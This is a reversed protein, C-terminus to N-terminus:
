RATFQGQADSVLAEALEALDAQGYACDDKEAVGRYRITGEARDLLLLTARLRTATCTDFRGRQRPHSEWDIGDAGSNSPDAVGTDAARAAIAFEAIIPAGQTTTISRAALADALAAGFNARLSGDTEFPAIQVATEAPLRGDTSAIHVPTSVACGGVMLALALAAVVARRSRAAEAKGPAKGPSKGLKTM